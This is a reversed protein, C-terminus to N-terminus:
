YKLTQTIDNKVYISIGFKSLTIGELGGVIACSAAVDGVTRLLKLTTIKIGSQNSNHM